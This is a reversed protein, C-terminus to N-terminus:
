DERSDGEARGEVVVVADLDPEEVVLELAVVDSGLLLGNVEDVLDLEGAQRGETRREVVLNQLRKNEALSPRVLKLLGDQYTDRANKTQAPDPVIPSVRKKRRTPINCTMTMVSPVGAPSGRSWTKWTMMLALRARWLVRYPGSAM